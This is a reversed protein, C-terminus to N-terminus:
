AVNRGDGKSIIRGLSAHAQRLKGRWAALQAPSAHSLRVLVQELDTVPNRTKRAPKKKPKAAPKSLYKAVVAKIQKKLKKVSDTPEALCADIEMALKSQKSKSLKMIEGATTTGLVERSVANQVAKPADLLKEWNEANRGTTGFPKAALDRLSGEVSGRKELIQKMRRFCRAMEMKDLQRRDVNDSLLEYDIADDDGELDYRVHVEIETWKLRKCAEVRQHGAIIRGDPLIDPPTKLGNRKISDALRDLEVDSLDKFYEAQKEHPKLKSIEWTELRPKGKKKTSKAM